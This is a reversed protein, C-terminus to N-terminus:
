DSFEFEYDEDKNEVNDSKENYEKQKNESNDKKNMEIEDDIFNAFESDLEKMRDDEEELDDEEESDVEYDRKSTDIPNYLLEDNEMMLGTNNNSNKNEETIILSEKKNVKNSNVDEISLDNINDNYSEIDSEFDSASLDSKNIIENDMEKNNFHSRTRKSAPEMSVKNGILFGGSEFEDSQNDDDEENSNFNDSDNSDEIEGHEDLLRKNIKLKTLLIKWARLNIIDDKMRKEDEEMEYLGECILEVAEKYEKFTVIGQIKASAERRSGTFDFGVVAPAYEICMLKAAKESFKDKIHVCGDPIMWPEYVDINKFANKPIIGDVIPPPVYKETQSEAYLRGDDEDGDGNENEDEDSLKYDDERKNKNKRKNVNKSRIKMPREGIKLVRGRMFWGRASRVIHVNSRKYVPIFNNNNENNYQRNTIKGKKSIGGCSIKPMLIENFKLDKELVYLPHGKFDSLNTPMGEKLELEQFEIEEFKDVRNDKIRKSSCAGVLLSKWWKEWKPERTIRKKRVKANYEKAYRRTIDRVGGVRDYGIIYWANNRICNMPPEIKSKWNIVEIIKKVTPDITIYKKADKDWVEVWFVPWSGYKEGFEDDKELSTKLQINSYTKRHRIMSLLRDVSKGKKFSKSQSISSLKEKNSEIKNKVTNFDDCKKMNTFDPPQISFILRAPLNLSRLLAVFGQAAIDRSGTHTLIMNKFKEKTLKQKKAFAIMKPYKIETWTKKYLIPAKYDITWLNGWYEMLHRLLDLLKRTKSQSTVNSKKRHEQYNKLELMLNNPIQKQISILLKPDSLWINRSVGYGVMTFLHMIHMMRRFIREEKSVTVSKHKINKIEKHQKITINIGDQEEKSENNIFATDGLDVDEFEDSDMDEDDESEDVSNIKDDNSNDSNDHDIIEIQNPSKINNTKSKEIIMNSDIKNNNNKDSINKNNDEDDLHIVYREHEERPKPPPNKRLERARQVPTQLRKARKLPRDSIKNNNNNNAREEKLANKLMDRYKQPVSTM